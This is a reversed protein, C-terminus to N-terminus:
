PVRVPIVPMVCENMILELVYLLSVTANVLM